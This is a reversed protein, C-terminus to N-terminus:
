EGGHRKKYEDLLDVMLSFWLTFTKPTPDVARAVIEATAKIMAQGEISAREAPKMERGGGGGGAWPKKPLQMSWYTVNNFEKSSEEFEIEQGAKYEAIHKSFCAYVKGDKIKVEWKDYGKTTKIPESVAEIIGKM